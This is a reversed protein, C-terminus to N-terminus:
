LTPPRQSRSFGLTELLLSVTKSGLYFAHSGMLLFLIENPLQPFKGTNSSLVEVIYYIAVALTFMLLQLRVPSFGGATPGKDYLLKKTRIQGTLLRYSILILLGGLISWVELRLVTQM